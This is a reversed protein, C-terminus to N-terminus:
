EFTVNVDSNWWWLYWMWITLIQFLRVKKMAFFDIMTSCPITTKQKQKKSFTWISDETKQNHFFSTVVTKHNEILRFFPIRTGLDFRCNRTTLIWNLAKEITPSQSQFKSFGFPAVSILPAVLSRCHPEFVKPITKKLFESLKQCFGFTKKLNRFNKVVTGFRPAQRRFNKCYPWVAIFSKNQLWVM